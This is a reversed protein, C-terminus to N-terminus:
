QKKPSKRKLRKLSFRSRKFKIKLSKKPKFKLIKKSKSRSRPKKSGGELESLLPSKKKENDSGSLNETFFSITKGLFRVPSSVINISEVIGTTAASVVDLVAATAKSTSKLIETM